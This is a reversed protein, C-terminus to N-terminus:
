VVRACCLEVAHAHQQEAEGWTACRWQKLSLEDDHEFGGFIMTEFLLPTGGLWNHDMALFITSIEYPGVRDHALHSGFYENMWRAWTELDPEPVPTQGVLTYYRSVGRGPAVSGGPDKM